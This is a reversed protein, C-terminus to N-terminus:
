FRFFDDTELAKEADERKRYYGSERSFPSCCAYGIYYGAFSHYVGIEPVQGCDECVTLKVGTSVTERPLM